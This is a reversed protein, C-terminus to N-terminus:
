GAKQREKEKGKHEKGEKEEEYGSDNGDEEGVSGRRPLQHHTVPLADLPAAALHQAAQSTVVAEHQVGDSSTGQALTAVRALHTDHWHWTMRKGKKTKM